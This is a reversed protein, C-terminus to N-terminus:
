LAKGLQVFGADQEEQDQAEKEEQEEAVDDCPEKGARRAHRSRWGEAAGPKLLAKLCALSGSEAAWHLATGGCPGPADKDAGAELLLEM